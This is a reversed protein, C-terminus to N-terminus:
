THSKQRHISAIMEKLKAEAIFLNRDAQEREELTTSKAVDEILQQIEIELARKDLSELPAGETVLAICKEPTVEAFGGDVFIRTSSKGAEYITIVGPRLLTLLPAHRPLVGIDGEAGPIVVMDVPQDLIVKEPSVLNFHLSAM